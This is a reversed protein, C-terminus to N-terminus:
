DKLCRVSAGTTEKNEDSLVVRDGGSTMSLGLADSKDFMSEATTWIFTAYGLWDFGDIHESTKRFGAPIVNFGFSDMGDSKGSWGSTSKLKRGGLM